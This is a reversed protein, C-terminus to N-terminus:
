KTAEQAAYWVAESPVLQGPYFRRLVTVGDAALLAGGPIAMENGVCKRFWAWRPDSYAVADLKLSDRYAISVKDEPKSDPRLGTPVYLRFDIAARTTASLKSLQEQVQPLLSHCAHCWPAGWLALVVKKQPKPEDPKVPAPIPAPAVTPPVSDASGARGCAVVVLCALLIARM